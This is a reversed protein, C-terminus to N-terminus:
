FFGYESGYTVRELFLGRAPATPGAENRDARNLRRRLEEPGGGQEAVQLLTGTLSRVMRWLFANGGIRFVLCPGERYFGARFIERIKSRSQDGAASFTTFDHIGRLVAALSNLEDLRYRRRVYHCYDREHAPPPSGSWIRYAYDRALASFRAHFDDPVARSKLVRISGPLRSNLAERLKAPPINDGVVAHAVQGTAHVGSDTRGSGTVAVSEGYLEGLTREMEGQVSVSERGRQVQWGCYDTGDYSLLLAAKYRGM